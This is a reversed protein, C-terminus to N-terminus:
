ANWSVLALTGCFLFALSLIRPIKSTHADALKWTAGFGFLLILGYALRFGLM